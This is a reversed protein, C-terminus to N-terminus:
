TVKIEEARSTEKRHQATSPLNTPHSKPSTIVKRKKKQHQRRGGTFYQFSDFGSPLMGRPNEAMNEDLLFWGCARM